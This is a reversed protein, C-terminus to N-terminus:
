DGWITTNETQDDLTNGDLTNGIDVPPLNGTDETVPPTSGDGVTPFSDHTGISSLVLVVAVVL